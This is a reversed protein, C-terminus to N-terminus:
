MIVTFNLHSPVESFQRAWTWSWRAPDIVAPKGPGQGAPNKFDGLSAWPTSPSLTGSQHAQQAGTHLGAVSLGRKEVRSSHLSILSPIGAASALFAIQPINPIGSYYCVIMRSQSPTQLLLLTCPTWASTYHSLIIIFFLHPQFHTKLTKTCGMWLMNPSFVIERRGKNKRQLGRM